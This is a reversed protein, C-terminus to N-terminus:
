EIPKMEVTNGERAFEYARKGDIYKASYIPPIQDMEGVFNKLTDIVFKDTIHEIPFENDFQTELDFSPTTKGLTIGAVYEKEQDQYENIRKTAKGTCIIM